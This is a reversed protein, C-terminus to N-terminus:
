LPDPPLNEDGAGYAGGESNSTRIVDVVDISLVKFEPEFYLMDM